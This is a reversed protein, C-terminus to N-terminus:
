VTTVHSCTNIRCFRRSHDGLRNHVDTNRLLLLDSKFTFHGSCICINFPELHSIITQTVTHLPFHMCFAFYMHLIKFFINIQLIVHFQFWPLVKADMGQASLARQDDVFAGRFICASVYTASSIIVGGGLESDM